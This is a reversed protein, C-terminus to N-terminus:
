RGIPCLDGTGTMGEFAAFWEFAIFQRQMRLFLTAHLARQM